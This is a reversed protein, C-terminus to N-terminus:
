AVSISIKCVRMLHLKQMEETREVSSWFWHAEQLSIYEAMNNIFNASSKAEDYFIALMFCFDDPYSFADLFVDVQNGLTLVGVEHTDLSHM